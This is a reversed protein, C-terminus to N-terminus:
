KLSWVETFEFVQVTSISIHINIDHKFITLQFPHASVTQFHTKKFQADLDFIKHISDDWIRLAWIIISIVTLERSTLAASTLSIAVLKREGILM